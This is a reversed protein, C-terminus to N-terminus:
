FKNIDIIKFQKKSHEGVIIEIRIIATDIFPVFITHLLTRVM